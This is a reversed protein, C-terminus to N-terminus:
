EKLSPDHHLVQENQMTVFTETEPDAWPTKKKELNEENRKRKDSKKNSMCPTRDAMNQPTSLGAVKSSVATVEPLVSSTQSSLSEGGCFDM